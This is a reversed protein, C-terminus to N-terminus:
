STAQQIVSLATNVIIYAGLIIALGIIAYQLVRKGKETRKTDGASFLYLAGGYIFMLLAGIGVFGLFINVIRTIFKKVGEEPNGTFDPIPNPLVMIRDSYNTTAPATQTQTNQSGTTGTSTNKPLTGQDEQLSQGQNTYQQTKDISTDTQARVLIPIVLLSLAIATLSSSILIKKM